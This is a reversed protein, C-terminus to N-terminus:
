IEDRGGAHLSAHYDKLLLRPPRDLELDGFLGPSRNRGQNLALLKPRLIPEKGATHLSFTMEASTLVSAQDVLPNAQHPEIGSAIACM